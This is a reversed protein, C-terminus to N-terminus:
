PSTRTDVPSSGTTTSLPRRGHRRAPTRPTEPDPRGLTPAPQRSPTGPPPRRRHRDPHPTRTPTPRHTRPNTRVPHRPRCRGQRPNALQHQEAGPPGPELTTRLSNGRPPPETPATPLTFAPLAQRKRSWTLFPKLQPRARRPHQELWHDIDAQTAHSPDVEAGRLWALYGIATAVRDRRSYGIHRTQQGERRRPPRRAPGDSRTYANLLQQDDPHAAAIATRAWTELRAVPEDRPPLVKSAVLLHRLHEIAWPYKPLDRRRRRPHRPHVPTPRPVHAHARRHRPQPRAMRDRHAPQRGVAPREQLHAPHRPRPRHPRQPARRGPNPASRYCIPSHDPTTTRCRTTTGCTACTLIPAQHCTPCLQGGEPLRIAVRRTRGCGTCLAKPHQYCRRCLAETGKRSLIVGPEGCRDCTDLPQQYCTGCVPGAPTRRESAAASWLPCLGALHESRAAPLHQLRPEQGATRALRRVKGCTTCPQAHARGYCGGCLPLGEATHATIPRSRGCTAGAPTPATTLLPPM